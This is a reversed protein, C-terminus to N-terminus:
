VVFRENGTLGRIKGNKGKQNIPKEPNQRVIKTNNLLRFSNNDILEIGDYPINKTAFRDVFDSYSSVATNLDESELLQQVIVANAKGPSRL